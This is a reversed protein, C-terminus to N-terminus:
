VWRMAGSSQILREVDERRVFVRRLGPFRVVGDERAVVRFIGRAVNMSVGLEESIM